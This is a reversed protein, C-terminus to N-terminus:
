LRQRTLYTLWQRALYDRAEIITDAGRMGDGIPAFEALYKTTWAGGFNRHIRGVVTTSYIDGWVLEHVFGNKRSPRRLTFRAPKM